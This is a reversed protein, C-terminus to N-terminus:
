LKEIGFIKIKAYNATLTNSANDLTAYFSVMSCVPDRSEQCGFM